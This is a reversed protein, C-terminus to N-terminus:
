SVPVAGSSDQDVLRANKLLRSSYIPVDKQVVEVVQVDPVPVAPTSAAEKKCGPLTATWLCALVIPFQLTVRFSSTIMTRM